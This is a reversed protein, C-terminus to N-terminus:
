FISPSAKLVVSITANLVGGMIVKTGNGFKLMSTINLPADIGVRRLVPGIFLENYAIEAIKPPILCIDRAILLIPQAPTNAALREVTAFFVGGLLPVFIILGPTSALLSLGTVGSIHSTSTALVSQVAAGSVYLGNSAKHLVGSIGTSQILFERNEHYNAFDLAVEEYSRGTIESIDNIYSQHSGILNKLDESSLLIKKTNTFSNFSVFKNKYFEDIINPNLSDLSLLKLDYCVGNIDIQNIPLTSGMSMLKFTDIKEKNLYTSFKTFLGKSTFGNGYDLDDGYSIPYGM